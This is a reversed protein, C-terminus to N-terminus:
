SPRIFVVIVCDRVIVLVFDVLGSIRWFGVLHHVLRGVFYGFLIFLRTDAVLISLESQDPSRVGAVSRRDAIQCRICIIELIVKHSFFFNM